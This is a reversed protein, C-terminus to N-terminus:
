SDAPFDLCASLHQGQKRHHPVINSDCTSPDPEAEEETAHFSDVCEKYAEETPWQSGDPHEHPSIQM